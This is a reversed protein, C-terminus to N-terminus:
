AREKMPGDDGRPQLQGNFIVLLPWNMRVEPRAPGPPTEDEAQMGAVTLILAVSTESNALKEALLEAVRVLIRERRTRAEIM